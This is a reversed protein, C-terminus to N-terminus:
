VTKKKLKNQRPTWPVISMSQSPPDILNEMTDDAMFPSFYAVLGMDWHKKKQFIMLEYVKYSQSKRWTIIIESNIINELDFTLM